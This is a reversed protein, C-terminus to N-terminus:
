EFLVPPKFGDFSSCHATKFKISVEDQVFASLREELRSADDEVFPFFSIVVGYRGIYASVDIVSRSTPHRYERAAPHSRDVSLGNESAFEDFLRFIQKVEKDEKASVVVCYSAEVQIGRPAREQAVGFLIVAGVMCVAAKIM